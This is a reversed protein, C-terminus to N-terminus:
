RLKAADRENFSRVLARRKDEFEEMMREAYDEPLELAQRRYRHELMELEKEGDSALAGFILQGSHERIAKARSAEVANQGHIDFMRLFWGEEIDHPRMKLKVRGNDDYKYRPEKKAWEGPIARSDVNLLEYKAPAGTSPDADMVKERKKHYTWEDVVPIFHYLEHDLLAIQMAEDMHDWESRDITIQADPEGLARDRQSTIKAIAAVERGRLKLGSDSSFWICGISLGSKKLHYHHLSTDIIREITPDLETTLKFKPV